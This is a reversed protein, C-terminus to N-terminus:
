QDAVCFTYKQKDLYFKKPTAIRLIQKVTKADPNKTIDTKELRQFDSGQAEICKSVIMGSKYPGAVTRCIMYHGSFSKGDFYMSGAGGLGNCDTGAIYDGHILKTRIDAALGTPFTLLAACSAAIALIKRTM